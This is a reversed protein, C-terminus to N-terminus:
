GAGFVLYNIAGAIRGVVGAKPVEQGAVLPVVVPDTGPATIEVSGLKQGKAIPAPVPSDYNMKVVMGKRADRSLTVGVVDEAVLPV